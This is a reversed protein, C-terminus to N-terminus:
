ERLLKVECFCAAYRSGLPRSPSDAPALWGASYLFWLTDGDRSVFKSPISMAYANPGFGGLYEVLRWPGTLADAELLLVGEASYRKPFERGEIDTDPGTLPSICMLYKRLPAVYTVKSLGLRDPWSLLPKMESIHHTWVPRGCADTSAFYEWRSPDTICELRPQTRLLYINDGNGWESLKAGESGHATMYVMGDPSDRMEQGLDVFHPGRLRANSLIDPFFGSPHSVPASHPYLMLEGGWCTQVVRAQWRADTEHKEAWERHPNLITADQWCTTDRLPYGLDGVECFGKAYLFGWFRAIGTASWTNWGEEMGYYWVGDLILNTCNFFQGPTRKNVNGLYHFKLDLPHEGTIRAMGAHISHDCGEIRGDGFGSYLNGDAAWAPYWYDADTYSKFRGTLAIGRIADSQPFPCNEPPPTGWRELDGPRQM